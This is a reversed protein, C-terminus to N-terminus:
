YTAALGTEQADLGEEEGVLLGAMHRPCNLRGAFCYVMGPRVRAM